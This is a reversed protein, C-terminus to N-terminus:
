KCLMGRLIPTGLERCHPKDDTLININSEAWGYLESPGREPFWWGFDVFVVRPDLNDMLATKQKIRGRKTEIYVWDGEDIELKKATEPHINVVPEPHKGRLSPIQRGEFHQFLAPKGNTLILPYEKVLEPDSYPTEAPEYYAPLPDMGWEKLRSSYLEVKGSPTGFGDVEYLRYRQKSGSVIGLKRFEEFTLGLPKLIDDLFQQEDEWFYERLGMKKALENIINIDSWCEGIEAVKQQVMAMPLRLYRKITDFELYSAVPLVIDALEATPTMFMDAVALFDLKKFARYTKWGNTWTILPNSGMIYAVRIPYPGEELIAAVVSEPIAFNFIPLLKLEASVNTRWKEMPMKERLELPSGAYQLGPLHGWQLEGGPVDLNGTIARLIANARSAQFSNVNHETANGWRICAPKNIAYLRAAEIIKEAPIWTIEAAKEPPYEQIHAKLEDFGVTWNDVFDKDYLGENIIVNIMALSLALDSGPRPRLWLHAKQALETKRLDIVLLKAGRSVARVTQRYVGMNTASLNCGWAVICAPPYEFDCAEAFGYTIGSALASPVACTHAPAVLNPTGFAFALRKLLTDQINKASGMIMAVSEAGHEDKAKLMERAITDLAEEWSVRQWNGQGREGGEKIPM